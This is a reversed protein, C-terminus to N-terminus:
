ESPESAVDNPEGEQGTDDELQGEGVSNDQLDDDIGVNDDIETDEGSQEQEPSDSPGPDDCGALLVASLGAAAAVAWLKHKAM